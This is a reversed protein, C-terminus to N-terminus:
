CDAIADSELELESTRFVLKSPEFLLSKVRLIIVVIFIRSKRPQTENAAPNVAGAEAFWRLLAREASVLVAVSLALVVASILLERM